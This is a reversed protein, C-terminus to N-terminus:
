EMRRCAAVLKNELDRDEVGRTVVLDVPNVDEVVAGEAEVASNVKLGDEGASATASYTGKQTSAKLAGALLSM